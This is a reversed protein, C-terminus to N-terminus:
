PVQLPPTKPAGAVPVIEEVVDPRWFRVDSGTSISNGTGDIEKIADSLEIKGKDQVADFLKTYESRSLFLRLEKIVDDALGTTNITFWGVLTILDARSEGLSGLFQKGDKLRVRVQVIQKGRHLRLLKGLTVIADDGYQATRADKRKKRAKRILWDVFGVVFGLAAGILALYFLKWVSLGSKLNFYSSSSLLVMIVASALVSYILKDGLAIGPGWSAGWFNVAMWFLLGPVILSAISIPVGGLTDTGLLAVNLPKEVYVFCRRCLRTPHSPRFHSPRQRFTAKALPM